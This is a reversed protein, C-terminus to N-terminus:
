ADKENHYRRRDPLEGHGPMQASVHDQRRLGGIAIAKAASLSRSSLARADCRNVQCEIMMRLATLPVSQIVPVNALGEPLPRADPEDGPNTLILYTMGSTYRWENTSIRLNDQM